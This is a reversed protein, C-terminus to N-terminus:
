FLMILVKSSRQAALRANSLKEWECLQWFLNKRINYGFIFEEIEKSYIVDM